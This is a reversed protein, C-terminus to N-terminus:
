PVVIRSVAERKAFIRVPEEVITQPSNGVVVVYDNGNPVECFGAGIVLAEPGIVSLLQAQRCVLEEPRIWDVQRPVPLVSKPAYSNAVAVGKM